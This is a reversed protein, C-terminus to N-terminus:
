SPRAKRKRSEEAGSRRSLARSLGQFLGLRKSVCRADPSQSAHRPGIAHMDIRIVAAFRSLGFFSAAARPAWHM